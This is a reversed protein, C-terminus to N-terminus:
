SESGGEDRSEAGDSMQGHIKWALNVLYEGEPPHERLLDAVAERGHIAAASILRDYPLRDLPITEVRSTHLEHERHSLAVAIEPDYVIEWFAAQGETLGKSRAIRRLVQKRVCHHAELSPSGWTVIEHFRRAAEMKARTM